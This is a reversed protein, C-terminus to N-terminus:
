VPIEAECVTAGSAAVLALTSRARTPVVARGSWEGRGGTITITGVEDTANSHGARLELSYAGDPVAYDVSVVLAAPSGNSVTIRGVPLGDAGTMTATRLRPASAVRDDDREADIVRIAAVSIMAAAAAAVAVAAVLRRTARRRDPRMARVVRDEFGPPPEVEPALHPLLDAVDIHEDVVAQCQACSALHDLVEARESGSLIDLALEPARERVVDCGITM